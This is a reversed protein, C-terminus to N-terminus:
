AIEASGKSGVGMDFHLEGIAFVTWIFKSEDESVWGWFWLLSVGM